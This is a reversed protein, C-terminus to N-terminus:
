PCGKTCNKSINYLDCYVTASTSARIRFTHLKTCEAVGEKFIKNNGRISQVVVNNVLADTTVSSTRASTVKIDIKWKCQCIESPPTNGNSLTVYGSAIAIVTPSSQSCGQRVRFAGTGNRGWKCNPSAAAFTITSLAMLVFAITIKNKIM